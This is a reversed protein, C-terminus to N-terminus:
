GASRNGPSEMDQLKVLEKAVVMLLSTELDGGHGVWREKGLRKKIVDSWTEWMDTPRYVMYDKKRHLLIINMFYSIFINNGGHGNLIMIKNFGNRGAEDCANELLQLMLEPNIAITGPQHRAENIQTLYYPPFVVAKEIKAAECAIKHVDFMDTGLPLHGGHKEIVGLSLICVRGSKILEKKFDAATLNEWQSM